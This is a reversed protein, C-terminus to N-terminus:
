LTITPHFSWSRHVLTVSKWRFDDLVCNPEIMSEIETMSIDFIQQSFTSDGNAILCNTQPAILETQFINTTQFLLVLSVSICKENILDEHLNITLLM